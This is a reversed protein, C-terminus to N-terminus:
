VHALSARSESFMLVYIKHVKRAWEVRLGAENGVLKHAGRRSCTIRHMVYAHRGRPLPTVTRVRDRLEDLGTARVRVRGGGVVGCSRVPRSVGERELRM